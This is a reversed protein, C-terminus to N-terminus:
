NHKKIKKSNIIRVFYAPNPIRPFKVESNNLVIKVTGFNFVKGLIGQSYSAMEVESLIYEQISTWIIGRRHLLLESDFWYYNFIWNFFLYGVVAIQFFMIAGVLEEKATLVSFVLSDRHAFDILKLLVFFIIDSFLMTLLVQVFLLIPTEYIKFTKDM